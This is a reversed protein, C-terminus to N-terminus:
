HDITFGFRQCLGYTFPEDIDDISIPRGNCSNYLTKIALNFLNFINEGPEDKAPSQTAKYRELWIFLEPEYIFWLQCVKM